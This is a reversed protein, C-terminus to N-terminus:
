CGGETEFKVRIEVGPVDVPKGGVQRPKYKYKLAAKTANREFMKSSSSIVQPDAVGGSSTVSYRLDVYGCLGREAARRPYIPSPRFIPLYEGDNQNFGKIDRNIGVKVTGLAFSSNIDIQDPIVKVDPLDPQQLVEQPRIPKPTIVDVDENKPNYNIDPLVTDESATLDPEDMKILAYMGFILSLTVFIAIIFSPISRFM